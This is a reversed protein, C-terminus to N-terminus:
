EVRHFKCSIPFGYKSSGHVAIDQCKFCRMLCYGTQSIAIVRSQEDKSMIIKKTLDRKGEQENSKKDSRPYCCSWVTVLINLALMVVISVYKHEYCVYDYVEEAFTFSVQEFNM